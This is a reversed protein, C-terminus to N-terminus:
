SPSRSKKSKNNLKNPQMPDQNRCPTGWGPSSRPRGTNPANLSLWQVLLFPGPNKNYEQPKYGLVVNKQPELQEAKVVPIGRLQVRHGQATGGDRPRRRKDPAPLSPRRLRPLCRRPTPARFSFCPARQGALGQGRAWQEASAASLVPAAGEPLSEPHNRTRSLPGASIPTRLVVTLRCAGRGWLRLPFGPLLASHRPGRVGAALMPRTHARSSGLM